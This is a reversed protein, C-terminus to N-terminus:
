PEEIFGPSEAVTPDWVGHTTGHALRDEYIGVKWSILDLGARLEELQEQVEAQHARLLELREDENGPGQRVLATFARLNALSMGSARLRTCIGLWHVNQPDYVRRGGSTRSVPTLLLGEREYFRLTHTSLGTREAVEGISLPAKGVNTDTM